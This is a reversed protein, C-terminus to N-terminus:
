EHLRNKYNSSPLNKFVDVKMWDQVDKQDSHLVSSKSGHQFYIAVVQIDRLNSKM